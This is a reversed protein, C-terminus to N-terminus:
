LINVIRTVYCYYFNIVKRATNLSIVLNLKHNSILNTRGNVYLTNGSALVVKFFIFLFLLLPFYFLTCTNNSGDFVYQTIQVPWISRFLKFFNRPEGLIFLLLFVVDFNNKNNYLIIKKARLMIEGTESEGKWSNERSFGSSIRWWFNCKKCWCNFVSQYIWGSNYLSM